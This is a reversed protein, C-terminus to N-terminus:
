NDFKDGPDELLVFRALYHEIIQLNHKRLHHSQAWLPIQHTSLVGLKGVNRHINVRPQAHAGREDSLRASTKSKQGINYRYVSRNM